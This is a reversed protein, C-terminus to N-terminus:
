DSNGLKLYTLAADQWYTSQACTGYAYGVIQVTYAGAAFAKPTGDPATAVGEAEVEKYLNEPSYGIASYTQSVVSGASTKVDLRILASGGNNADAYYTAGARVFLRGTTTLRVDRTALIQEACNPRYGSDGGVTRGGTLGAAGTAGKAALVDWYTTNTPVTGVPPTARVIYASGNYSVADNIAYATTSVYASRWRMGKQNFELLKESATCTAGAQRDIVRLAGNSTAYCTSIVKTSSNPIAAQALAGVALAVAALLLPLRVRRLIRM